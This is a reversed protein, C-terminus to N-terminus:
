TKDRSVVIRDHLEIIAKRGTSVFLFPFIGHVLCALGAILFRFSITSAVVFHELYSEGVSKPHETFLHSLSKNM